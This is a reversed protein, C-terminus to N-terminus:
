EDGHPAYHGLYRNLLETHRENARALGTVIVGDPLGGLDSLEDVYRGNVLVALHADLGPVRHADVAARDLAPLAPRLQVQYDHALVAGINTYKWAETRPTPFGLATFREFAEQRLGQLRANSGNLAHGVNQEFAAVFRDEPRTKEITTTM